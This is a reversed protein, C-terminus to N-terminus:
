KLSITLPWLSFHIFKCANVLLLVFINLLSHHLSYVTLHTINYTTIILCLSQYPAFIDFRILSNEFELFVELLAFGSLDVSLERM